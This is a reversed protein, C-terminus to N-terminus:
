VRRKFQRDRGGRQIALRLRHMMFWASKQTVKLARAVECSSIGNKANVLLWLAPLWKSRPLPSEAFVTGVKVTFQRRCDKCNWLRRIKGPKGSVVLAGVNVSDCHACRVGDPWRMHMFFEHARDEDAFFAVAQLLSEPLQETNM